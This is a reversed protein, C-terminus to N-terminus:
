VGGNHNGGIHKGKVHWDRCVACAVVPKVITSKSKKTKRGQKMFGQRLLDVYRDVM